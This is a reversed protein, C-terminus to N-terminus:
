KARKANNVNLFRTGTPRWVKVIIQESAAAKCLRVADEANAVPQRNVEIIVDGGHLGAEYSNSGSDVDTVLAGALDPVARLQRRIRPTLDQVTVGDLADAKPKETSQVSPKASERTITDPREGLTAAITKLAGNRYIKLKAQSGPHLQSIMVRLSDV